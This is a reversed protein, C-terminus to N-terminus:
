AYTHIIPWHIVPDTIYAHAFHSAICIWPESLCFTFATQSDPSFRLLINACTHLGGGCKRCSSLEVVREVDVESGTKEGALHGRGDRELSEDAMFTCGEQGVWVVWASGRWLKSLGDLRLLDWSPSFIIEVVFDTKRQREM